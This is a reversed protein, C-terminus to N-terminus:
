VKGQEMVASSCTERERLPVAKEILGRSKLRPLVSSSDSHTNAEKKTKIRKRARKRKMVRDKMM